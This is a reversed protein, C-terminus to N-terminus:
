ESVTSGRRNVHVLIFFPGPRIRGEQNEEGLDRIFRLDQLGVVVDDQGDHVIQAVPLRAFGMFIRALPTQLAADVWGDRRSGYFAPERPAPARRLLDVERVEYGGGVRRLVRWEFPSLFTPLAVIGCDKPGEAAPDTERTVGECPQLKDPTSESSWADLHLLAKGAGGARVLVLDHMTARLVYQAAVVFLVATTTHRWARPKVTLAVLGCALALLLYPDIIPLWDFAFWTTIIPSLLRTGYSTPLDMLVHLSAGLLSLGFLKPFSGNTGNLHPGGRNRVAMWARVIGATTLALLVVGLPGHTPGRHLALYSGARDSFAAVIDIDPANSAVLLAATTGPGAKRLSTRSLTLAFLSHTM